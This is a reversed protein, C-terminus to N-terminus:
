IVLQSKEEFPHVIVQYFLQGHSYRMSFLLPMGKQLNALTAVERARLSRALSLQQTTMDYRYLGATNDVNGVAGNYWALVHKADEWM